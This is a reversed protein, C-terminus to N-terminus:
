QRREKAPLLRYFEKWSDLKSVRQEISSAATEQQVEPFKAADIAQRWERAGMLNKVANRTASTAIIAPAIVPAIVPIHFAAM